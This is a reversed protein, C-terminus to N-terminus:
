KKEKADKKEDKKEPMAKIKAVVEDTIDLSDDMYIIPRGNPAAMNYVVNFGRSKAVTEITKTVTERVPNMIEEEKEAVENQIQRELEQLNTLEKKFEEEKEKKAEESRLLNKKLDNNMKELERGKETLLKRKPDAFAEMDENAKAFEPYTQLLEPLNVFCAKINGGTADESAAPQALIPAVCLFCALTAAALRRVIRVRQTKM